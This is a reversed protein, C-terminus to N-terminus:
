NAWSSDNNQAEMHATYEVSSAKSLMSLERSSNMSAVTFRGRPAGIQIYESVCNSDALNSMASSTIFPNINAIERNPAVMCSPPIFSLLSTTMHLTVSDGLGLDLFLYFHFLFLYLGNDEVRVTQEM